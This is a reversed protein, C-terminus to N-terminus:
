VHSVVSSRPIKLNLTISEYSPLFLDRQGEPSMGFIWSPNVPGPIDRIVSLKRSRRLFVYVFAAVFTALVGLRYGM